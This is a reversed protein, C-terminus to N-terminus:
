EIYVRKELHSNLFIIIIDIQYFYLNNKVIIEFFTKITQSKIVVTFIKFYDM